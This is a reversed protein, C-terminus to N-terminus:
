QGLDVWLECDHTPAERFGMSIICKSFPEGLPPVDVRIPEQPVGDIYTYVTFHTHHPVGASELYLTFCAPDFLSPDCTGPEIRPTLWQTVPAAPWHMGSNCYHVKVGPVHVEEGDGTGVTISDVGVPETTSCFEAHEAHAVGPAAALGTVSLVCIALSLTLVKRM